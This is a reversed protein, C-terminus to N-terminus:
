DLTGLDSLDADPKAPASVPRTKPQKAPTKKLQRVAIRSRELDAKRLSKLLDLSPEGTGVMGFTRQFDEIAERTKAGIAGDVPGPDFGLRSLVTQIEMTDYLPVGLAKLSIEAVISNTVALRYLRIAEERDQLVGDGWQYLRGLHYLGNANGRDAAIRYLRLAEVLDKKRGAEGNQYIQGLDATADLNGANAAKEYWYAAQEIDKEVSGGVDYKLGLSRMAAANGNEAAQHYWRIAAEPDKEVGGLGNAYMRAAQLQGEAFGAQASKLIFFFAKKGDKELGDGNLYQRGLDFFAPASGSQGARELWSRSAAYDQAILDNAAYANGLQRAADPDGQHAATWVRDLWDGIVVNIKAKNENRDVEFEVRDGPTRGQLYNLVQDASMVPRGDLGVVIDGPMLGTDAATGFEFVSRAKAGVFVGLRFVDDWDIGVHGLTRLATPLPPITVEAAQVMVEDAVKTSSASPKLRALRIRALAAFVGEPFALLYAEFEKPDDANKVSDWFAVEATTDHALLVYGTQPTALIGQARSVTSAQLLIILLIGCGLSRKTNGIM